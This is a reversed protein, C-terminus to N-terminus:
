KHFYRSLVDSKEIACRASASGGLRYAMRVDNVEIESLEIEQFSLAPRLFIVVPPVLFLIERLRRILEQFEADVPWFTGDIESISLDVFWQNKPARGRAEVLHSRYRADPALSALLAVWVIGRWSYATCLDSVMSEDLAGLGRLLAYHQELPEYQITPYQALVHGLETGDRVLKAIFQKASELSAYTLYPIPQLLRLVDLDLLNVVVREVRKMFTGGVALTRIRLFHVVLNVPFSDSEYPRASDVLGIRRRWCGRCFGRSTSRM